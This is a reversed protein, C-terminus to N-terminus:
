AADYLIQGERWADFYVTGPTHIRDDFMAKSVVLLDTPLMLGRLVRLLRTMEAIRDKVEPLVILLDVDSDESADGRAHSGFLIIRCPHAAEVLRRVAERLKEPTVARPPQITETSM